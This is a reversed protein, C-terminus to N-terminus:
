MNTGLYQRLVQPTFYYRTCKFVSPLQEAVPMTKKKFLFLSTLSILLSGYVQTRIKETTNNLFLLLTQNIYLCFTIARLRSSSDRQFLLSGRAERTHNSLLAGLLALGVRGRAKVKSEHSERLRSKLLKVKNGQSRRIEDAIKRETRSKKSGSQINKEWVCIEGKSYYVCMHILLMHMEAIERFLLARPHMCFEERFPFAAHHYCAGHACHAVAAALAHRRLAVPKLKVYTVHTHASEEEVTTCTM